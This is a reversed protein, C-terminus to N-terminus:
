AEGKIEDREYREYPDIPVYYETLLGEVNSGDDFMPCIAFFECKWTCDKSPRPPAVWHHDGGNDLAQHAQVIDQLVKHVHIWHHKLSTKNFRVEIEGYFPPKASATRKVKRLMSYLGGDTRPRPNEATEEALAKLHELLAYTLMQTDMPLFKVPSTLEQATKWDRFIIAGDSLRRWRQDLKGRLKVGEIGSPVEIVEEASIFEMDADIGEEQVWVLYGEIMAKALDQESRLKKLLSEKDIVAVEDSSIYDIQDLYIKNITELPDVGNRYLLELAYHINTGLSLAGTEGLVKPMGLQRYYAIYWRRNCDQWTKLESQSISLPDGLWQVTM